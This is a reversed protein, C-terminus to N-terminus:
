AMDRMEYLYSDSLYKYEFERLSIPKEFLFGQAKSYGLELIVKAQNETEVGEFIIDKHAIDVLHAIGNLYDRKTKSCGIDELFKKDIKVVDVPAELLLDLSSYGTGFDDINIKFGAKQLKSLDSILKDNDDHIVTETIEIEILDRSVRYYDSLKIVMKAFNEDKLHARSFNVSVPILNRGESEWKKIVSLLLMYIYYDLDVINGHAELLPIFDNPMAYSGDKRRWRTLAEAGIVRRSDLSFKPQLFMEIEGTSLADLLVKRSRELDVIIGNNTTNYM